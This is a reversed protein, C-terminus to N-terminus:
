PTLPWRWRGLDHLPQVARARRRHLEDERRVQRRHDAADERREVRRERVRRRGAPARRSASRRRATRRRSAAPIARRVRARHAGRVDAADGHVTRRARSRASTRTTSSLRTLPAAPWAIWFMFRINPRGSVVPRVAGGTSGYRDAAHRDGRDPPADGAVERDARRAHRHARVQPPRPARHRQERETASTPPMHHHPKSKPWIRPPKLRLSISCRRAVSRPRRALGRLALGGLQARVFACSSLSSAIIRPAAPFARAGPRRVAPPSRPSSPPARTGASAREVRRSAPPRASGAARPRAAVALSM